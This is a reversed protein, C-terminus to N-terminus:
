TKKPYNQCAKEMDKLFNPVGSKTAWNILWSPIQGGPNDFYYMFVKSGQKGDSEIALNQKYQKVRVVGSKEGLQPVLTSRSLVVHIKRGAVDLERRQRIFVYDRNSFPFPCKMEWYVVTQGNCEREYLEQVYQDWQKRYAVDMYVDALLAPSCNKLVGFVKYEYLGTQQDWLGYVSIGSSEVLLQWDAGALVPQELEACAELFQGESFGGVVPDM